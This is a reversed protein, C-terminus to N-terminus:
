TRFDRQTALVAFITQFFVGDHLKHKSRKEEEEKDFPSERNSNRASLRPLQASSLDQNVAFSSGYHSM